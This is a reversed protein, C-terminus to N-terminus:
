SARLTCRVVRVGIPDFRRNLEGKLKDALGPLEGTLRTITERAQNAILQDVDALAEYKARKPEVIQFYLDASCQHTTDNVAVHHGILPVRRDITEIFPILYHLGPTMVRSGGGIRRVLAVEGDPIQRFGLLAKVFSLLQNKAQTVM